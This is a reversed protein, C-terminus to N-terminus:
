DSLSVPIKRIGNMKKKLKMLCKCAYTLKHRLKILGRRLNLLSHSFNTLSHRLNVKEEECKGTQMLNICLINSNSEM